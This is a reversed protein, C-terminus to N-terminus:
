ICGGCCGYRVNANVCELIEKFYPTLEKPFNPENLEWPGETAILGDEEDSTIGGGSILADEIKYEKEGVRITLTGVCLCPYVGDYNVFQVKNDTNSNLLKYEGISFSNETVDLDDWDEEHGYGEFPICRVKLTNKERNIALVVFQMPKTCGRWAQQFVDGVKLTVKEM